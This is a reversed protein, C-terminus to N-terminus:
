WQPGDAARCGTALPLALALALDLALPLDPALDRVRILVQVLRVLGPSAPARDQPEGVGSPVRVTLNLKLRMVGSRPEKPAVPSRHALLGPPPCGPAEGSGEPQPPLRLRPHRSRPETANRDPVLRNSIPNPIPPTPLDRTSDPYRQLEFPESGPVPLALPGEPTPLPTPLVAATPAGRRPEAGRARPLVRVPRAARVPRPGRVPRLRRAVPRTILARRGPRTIMSPRPRWQPPGPQSRPRVSPEQIPWSRAPWSRMSRSRM